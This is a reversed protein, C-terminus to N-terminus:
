PMGYPAVANLAVTHFVTPHDAIAYHPQRQCRQRAFKSYILWDLGSEPRTVVYLPKLAKGQFDLSIRVPTGRQYSVAGGGLAGM